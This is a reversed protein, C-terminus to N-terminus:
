KDRDNMLDALRNGSHGEVRRSRLLGECHIRRIEYGRSRRDLAQLPVTAVQHIHNLLQMCKKAADLGVQKGRDQQFGFALRGNQDFVIHWGKRPPSDWEHLAAQLGSSSRYRLFAPVEIELCAIDSPLETCVPLKRRWATLILRDIQMSANESTLQTQPPPVEDFASYFNWKERDALTHHMLEGRQFSQLPISGCVCIVPVHESYAGAIGNIASLAGVCNTVILAGIGKLRAYADTAYSANLENCNGVRAPEVRDELQQMLELDYDSPGGFIHHIGAEKLRRLLFDGITQKM